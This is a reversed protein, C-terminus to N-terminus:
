NATTDIQSRFRGTIRFREEDKVDEFDYNATLDFQFDGEIIGLSDDFFTISATGTTDPADGFSSGVDCGITQTYANRYIPYTGEGQFDAMRFYVGESDCDGIRKIGSVDLKSGFLRSFSVGEFTEGEIAAEFTFENTEDADNSTLDCAPVSILVALFGLILLQNLKIM